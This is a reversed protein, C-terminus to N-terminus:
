GCIPFKLITLPSALTSRSVDISVSESDDVRVAFAVCISGSYVRRTPQRQTTHSQLMQMVEESRVAQGRQAWLRGVIWHDSKMETVSNGCNARPKPGQGADSFNGPLYDHGHAPAALM